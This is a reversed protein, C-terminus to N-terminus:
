SLAELLLNGYTETSVLFYDSSNPIPVIFLSHPYIYGAAGADPLYSIINNIDLQLNGDFLFLFMQHTTDGTPTGVAAVWLRNSSSIYHCDTIHLDSYPLDSFNFSGMEEGFCNTKLLTNQNSDFSLMVYGKDQTQIVKHATFSYNDYQRVIPTQAWCFVSCFLFLFYISKM